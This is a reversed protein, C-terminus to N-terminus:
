EYLKGANCLYLLKYKKLQSEFFSIHYKFVDISRYLFAMEECVKVMDRSTKVNNCLNVIGCALFEEYSIALEIQYVVIDLEADLINYEIDKINGVIEKVM